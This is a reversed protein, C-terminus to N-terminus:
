RYTLLERAAGLVEYESPLIWQELNPHQALMCRKAGIVGIHPPILYEGVAEQIMQAISEGAGGYKIAEHVILVRQTKKVSEVLLDMDLPCLSRLDILEISKGERALADAAPLVVHFWTRAGWAIISIDNGEQRLAASGISVEGDKVRGFVSSYAWLDEFFLIPADDSLSSRLLAAADHPTSPHVMKLGPTHFFESELRLSSHYEGMSKGGGSPLRFICHPSFGTTWFFSALYDIFQQMACAAFPFYQIEAIPVLGVVAHGIANGVIAIEALPTNFCQGPMLESDAVIDHTMNYVGGGCMKGDIMRGGVDEGFIRVRWDSKLASYLTNRIAVGYSLMSKREKNSIKTRLAYVADFPEVYRETKKFSRSPFIQLLSEDPKPDPSTKAAEYAKDILGSEEEAIASLEEPSIEMTDCAFMRGPERDHIARVADVSRLGLLTERFMRVPDLAGWEVFDFIDVCNAKRTENHESMRFTNCELIFPARPMNCRVLEGIDKKALTRARDVLWAAYNYVTVVDNGNAIYIGEMNYGRAIDAINRTASQDEFPTDTAIRNNDIVFGVPLNQTAAYNLVEHFTGQRSAGDGCFCLVVPLEGAQKEHDYIYKLAHAIGVGTPWNSIMHSIFRLIHKKLFGYHINGDRGRSPSNAKCFHNLFDEEPTVGFHVLAGKSRHGPVIWDLKPDCVFSAGLSVAEEGLSLLAVTPVNSNGSEKIDYRIKLEIFRARCMQRWMELKEQKSLHAFYAM